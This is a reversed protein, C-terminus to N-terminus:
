SRPHETRGSARMLRLALTPCAAVAARAHAALEAPVAGPEIIPYGWEDLTIREPLLEACMGHGHCEIRNIQLIQESHRLHLNM